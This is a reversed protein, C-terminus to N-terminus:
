TVENKGEGRVFDWDQGRVPAIKGGCTACKASGYARRTAAYPDDVWCSQAGDCQQPKLRERLPRYEAVLPDDARM